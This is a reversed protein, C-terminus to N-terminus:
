PPADKCGVFFRSWPPHDWFLLERFCAVRTPPCVGGWQREVGPRPLFICGLAAGLEATTRSGLEVAARSGPEAAARSGLEAAGRSVLEAAGRSGLEVVAM